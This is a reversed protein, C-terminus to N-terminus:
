PLSGAAAVNWLYVRSNVDATALTKGEPSFAAWTVGYTSGPRDANGHHRRRRREM